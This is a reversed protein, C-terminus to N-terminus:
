QRSFRWTCIQFPKLEVEWDSESLPVLTCQESAPEELANCSWARVMNHGSCSVIGSTRAGMSEWARVIIDGSNDDALKVCSLLAGEADLTVGTSYHSPTGHVLRPPHAIRAAEDEIGQALPDGDGLWISWELHQFGTDADPDPFHPARLLTLRLSDNRIDYGRPGDALLAVAFRPEAIAVYRHACVEFRAVDWSTNSHRARRVHGFQTGCVADHAHVDTPLVFQVRQESGHWDASMSIDIRPSGAHVTFEVRFRSSEFAYDVTVTASLDHNRTIVPPKSAHIYSSPRNADTRDIDWADYEAPTDQHSTFGAMSGEPIVERMERGGVVHTITGDAAVTIAVRSNDITISGDHHEEVDVHPVEIQSDAAIEAGGLAPAIVWTPQGGILQVGDLAVPAPNLVWQTMNPTVSVSHSIISECENVVEAHIREADQHVWAISSGPIIDHFQQTLVQQWLSDINTPRVGSAVSWLEAEHLARESNRNGQKTGIQTSYTGRHKEFYMEGIWRPADDGYEDHADAFYDRVRGFQVRPVGELNASLRGLDVMTQTPGGGGDGHGYLALSSSAGRHDKFNREAFRLQGPTLLANYTDIPSFHTFVSTGDIGEWWFTHHPFSNTENWSLKQTFFWKAGGLAVIQPLSGPYGFDDPLFAGNCTTGFWSVFARQGQVMQRILSEGSPLNLDTEVWMGGVPEWRGERVLEQVQAFLEPADEAVWAYHQAQSHCYVM